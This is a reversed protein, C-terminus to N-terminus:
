RIDLRSVSLVVQSMDFEIPVDVVGEDSDIGLHLKDMRIPQVEKKARKETLIYRVKEKQSPTLKCGELKLEELVVLVNLLACFFDFSETMDSGELELIRLKANVSDEGDPTLTDLARIIARTGFNGPNSSTYGVTVLNFCHQLIRAFTVACSRDGLENSYICFHTLKTAPRSRQATGRVQTEELLEAELFRMGENTIRSTQIYIQRLSALSMLGQLCQLDYDQVSQLQIAILNPCKTLANRFRVLARHHTDRDERLLPGSLTVGAISELVIPIKLFRIIEKAGDETFHRGGLLLVIEVANTEFLHYLSFIAGFWRSLVKFAEKVTVANASEDVGSSIDLVVRNNNTAM